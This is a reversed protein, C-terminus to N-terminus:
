RPLPEPGRPSKGTHGLRAVHRRYWQQFTARNRCRVSCYRQRRERVFLRQCKPAACRRLRHSFPALEMVLLYSVADRVDDTEYQTSLCGDGDVTLRLRVQAQPRRKGKSLHQKLLTHITGRLLALMDAVSTQDDRGQLLFQSLHVAEDTGKRRLGVGRLYGELKEILRQQTRSHAPGSPQQAFDVLWRLREAVRIRGKLRIEQGGSSTRPVRKM